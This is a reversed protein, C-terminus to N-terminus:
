LRGFNRCCSACSIFYGSGACFYFEVRVAWGRGKRTSFIRFVLMMFLLKSARVREVRDLDGGLAEKMSAVLNLACCKAAEQGQAVTLGGAGGPTLTGKILDGAGDKAPLHGSLYLLDGDRSVLSYNAQV